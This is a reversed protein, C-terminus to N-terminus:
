LDLVFGLGKKVGFFTKWVFAMNNIVIKKRLHGVRLTLWTGGMSELSLRITLVAVAKELVHHTSAVEIKIPWSYRSLCFVLFFFEGAHKSPPSIHCIHERGWKLSRFHMKLDNRLAKCCSMLTIKLVSTSRSRGKPHVVEVSFLCCWSLLM